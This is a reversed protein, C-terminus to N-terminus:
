VTQNGQASTAPRTPKYREKASRSPHRKLVYEVLNMFTPHYSERCLIENLVPNIFKTGFKLFADLEHTNRPQKSLYEAFLKKWGPINFNFRDKLEDWVLPVHIEEFNDFINYANPM